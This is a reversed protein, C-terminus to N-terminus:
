HVRNLARYAEAMDEAKKVGGSDTSWCEINCSSLWSHKANYEARAM